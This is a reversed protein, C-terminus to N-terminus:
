SSSDCQQVLVWNNSGSSLKYVAVVFTLPEKTNRFVKRDMAVAYTKKKDSTTYLRVEKAAPLDPFQLQKLMGVGLAKDVWEGWLNRCPYDSNSKAAELLSSVALELFKYSHSQQYQSGFYNAEVHPFREVYRGVKWDKEFSLYSSSAHIEYDESDSVGYTVRYFSHDRSVEYHAPTTRLTKHKETLAISPISAADIANLDNPYQTKESHNKEIKEILVSFQQKQQRLISELDSQSPKSAGCGALAIVAILLGQSRM